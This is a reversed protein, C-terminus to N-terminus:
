GRLSASSDWLTMNSTFFRRVWYFVSSFFWVFTLSHFVKWGILPVPFFVLLDYLTSIILSFVKWGPSLVPFSFGLNTFLPFVYNPRYPVQIILSKSSLPSPHYSVQIILSKSSLPSPHYPVQIILSKTLILYQTTRYSDFQWHGFQWQLSGSAAGPLYIEPRRGAEPELVVSVWIGGQQRKKTTEEKDGRKQRRKKIVESPPNKLM